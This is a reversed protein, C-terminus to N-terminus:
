PQRVVRVAVSTRRAADYREEWREVHFWARGESLQASPKSEGRGSLSQDNHCGTM